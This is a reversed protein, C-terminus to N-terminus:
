KEKLFEVYDFFQEQDHLHYIGGGEVEVSAVKNRGWNGEGTYYGKCMKASINDLGYAVLLLEMCQEAVFYFDAFFLFGGRTSSSRSLVENLSDMFEDYKVVRGRLKIFEKEFEERTM